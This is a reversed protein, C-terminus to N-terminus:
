QRELDSIADRIDVIRDHLLRLHEIRPQPQRAELLWETRFLQLGRRLQELQQHIQGRSPRPRLHRRRRIQKM